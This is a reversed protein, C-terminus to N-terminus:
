LVAQWVIHEMFVSIMQKNDGTCGQLAAKNIQEVIVAFLQRKKEKKRRKEKPIKKHNWLIQKREDTM